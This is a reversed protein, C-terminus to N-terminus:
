AWVLNHVYGTHGVEPDFGLPPNMDQMEVDDMWPINAIAALVEPDDDYDLVNTVNEGPPLLEATLPSGPWCGGATM